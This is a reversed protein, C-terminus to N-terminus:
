EERPANYKRQWEFKPEPGEEKKRNIGAPADYMFSLGLRAKEDGLLARFINYFKLDNFFLLILSFYFFNFQTLFSGKKMKKNFLSYTM